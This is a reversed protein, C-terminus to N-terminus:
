SFRSLTRYKFGEDCSAMKEREREIERERELRQIRDRLIRFCFFGSFSNSAVFGHTL